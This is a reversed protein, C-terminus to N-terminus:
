TKSFLLPLIALGDHEKSPDTGFRFFFCV